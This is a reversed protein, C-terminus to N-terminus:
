RSLNFLFHRGDDFSQRLIRVMHWAIVVDCLPVRTRPKHVRGPNPRISAQTTNRIRAARGRAFGSHLQVDQDAGGRLSSPDVVRGWLSVVRGLPKCRQTASVSRAKQFSTDCNTDYGHRGQRAGVYRETDSWVFVLPADRQLSFCKTDSRTPRHRETLSKSRQIRLSSTLPEIGSLGVVGGIQKGSGAVMAKLWLVNKSPAANRGSHEM